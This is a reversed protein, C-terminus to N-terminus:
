SESRKMCAIGSSRDVQVHDKRDLEESAQLLTALSTKARSTQQESDRMNSLWPRPSSSQTTSPHTAIPPLYRQQQSDLGYGGPSETKPVPDLLSSSDTRRSPLPTPRPPLHQSSSSSSSSSQLGPPPPLIQRNSPTSSQNRPRLPTLLQRISSESSPGSSERSSSNPPPMVRDLQNKSESLPLVYQQQTWSRSGPSRKGSDSRRSTTSFYSSDHTLPPMSDSNLTSRRDSGFLRDSAPFPDSRTYSQIASSQASHSSSEPELMSSPAPIYGQSAVNSHPKLSLAPHKPANLDNDRMRHERFSRTTSAPSTLPSRQDTRYKSSHLDDRSLTVSDAQDPSSSRPSATADRDLKPRKAEALLYTWALFYPETFRGTAGSQHPGHKLRFDALYDQYAAYDSTKKYEALQSYYKEKLQQADHECPEKDYTALSQWREGVLKAIETFSLERGSNRLEDRM